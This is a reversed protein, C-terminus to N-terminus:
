SHNIPSPGEAETISNNIERPFNSVLLQALLFGAVLTATPIAGVSLFSDLKEPTLLDNLGPLWTKMKEVAPELFLILVISLTIGSFVAALASLLVALRLRDSLKRRRPPPSFDDASM